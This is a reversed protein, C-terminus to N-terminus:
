KLVCHQYVTQKHNVNAVSQQTYQQNQRYVSIKTLYINQKYTNHPIYYPTITHTKQQSQIGHLPNKLPQVLSEVPTM